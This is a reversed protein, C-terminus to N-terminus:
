IQPSVESEKTHEATQIISLTSLLQKVHHEHNIEVARWRRPIRGCVSFDYQNHVTRKRLFKM